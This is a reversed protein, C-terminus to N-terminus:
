RKIPRAFTFSLPMKLLLVPNKIIFCYPLDNSVHKWFEYIFCLFENVGNTTLHMKRCITSKEIKFFLIPLPISLNEHAPSPEHRYLAQYYKIAAMRWAWFDSSLRLARFKNSRNHVLGAISIVFDDLDILLFHLFRLFYENGWYTM